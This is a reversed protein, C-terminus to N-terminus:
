GNMRALLLFTKIRLWIDTVEDEYYLSNGSLGFELLLLGVFPGREKLPIVWARDTFNEPSQRPLSLPLFGM